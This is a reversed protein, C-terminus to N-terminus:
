SSVGEGLVRYIVGYERLDQRRAAQSVAPDPAVAVASGFSLQYKIETMGIREQRKKTGTDKFGMRDYLNIAPSNKDFVWLLFEEIHPNKGCEVEFLYEVLREGMHRGRLGPVIWVSEIFRAKEPDETDKYRLRDPRKAAAIGVVEEGRQAVAWTSSIIERKWYDIPQADIDDVTKLFAGPSTAIAQRIAKQLTEADRRLVSSTVTEIPSKTRVAHSNMEERGVLFLEM